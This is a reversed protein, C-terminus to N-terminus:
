QTKGLGYGMGAGGVALAANMAYPNTAANGMYNKVQGYGQRIDRGLNTFNRVTPNIADYTRRYGQFGSANAPSRSFYDEYFPTTARMNELGRSLGKHEIIRAQTEAALPGLRQAISNETNNLFKNALGGLFRGGYSGFAEPANHQYFHALEHRRTAYRNSATPSMDIKKTSPRYVGATGEPTPKVNILDRGARLRAQRLRSFNGVNLGAAIKYLAVANQEDFGYESARKVFGNIYAQGTNM